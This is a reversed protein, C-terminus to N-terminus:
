KTCINYGKRFLRNTIYVNCDAKILQTYTQFGAAKSHGGGGLKDISGLKKALEECDIDNKSTFLSYVYQNGNFQFPIVIDYKYFKDGFLTSNGRRNVAFCKYVKINDETKDVINLEFGYENCLSENTIDQYKKIIEGKAIAENIYSEMYTNVTAIDKKNGSFLKSLVMNNYKFMSSFVSKPTRHESKVGIHFEETKDVNFKWVDWSDVYELYLPVSVPYNVRPKTKNLKCFAYIYSLYAGCYVSDIFYEFNPYNKLEIDHYELGMIIKESTRHHDIWIVKIDNNSLELAYELNRRNSFSYDVFYLEDGPQISKIINKLNVTYDIKYFFYKIGIPSNKNVRKLYEYIVAASALGDEDTHYCIHFAKM